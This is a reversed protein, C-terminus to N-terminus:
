RERVPIILSSTLVGIVLAMAMLIMGFGTGIGPVIQNDLM